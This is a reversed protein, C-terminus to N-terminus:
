IRLLLYVAFIGIAFVILAMLTVQILNRFISHRALPNRGIATMGSRVGAYLIGGAILLSVILVAFSVYIRFASVPRNTAFQAAKSLFDPVGAQKQKEYLPNHAVSVEIHVHGLTVKEKGHNTQLDTSSEANLGGDFSELAKGVVLQQTTQAKMGVGDIASVTIYDGRKIPGNQDSVLVPYQGATAVYIQRGDGVNSLSVAADGSSVVVGLMDEVDAQGVAEVKATNNPDLRVIMGNQLATDSLYGQTVNQAWAVGITCIVFLVLGAFLLFRQFLRTHKGM